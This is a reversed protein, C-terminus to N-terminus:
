CFKLVLGINQALTKKQEMRNHLNLGEINPRASRIECTRGVLGAKEFGERGGMETELREVM